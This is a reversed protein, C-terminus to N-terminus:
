GAPRLELIRMGPPPRRLEWGTDIRFYGGDSWIPALDRYHPSLAHGSQGPATVFLSADLDSLDYIARMSAAHVTEFDSGGFNFHGVNITSGDGGHPARVTFLRNLLPAGGLLAHGFLGAHAEGWRWAAPDEGYREALRAGAADLAAGMAEGCTEDIPTAIDDCWQSLEGSLVRDIFVQRANDFRPFQEGLEDAYIARHLAEYWAAFALPEPRATTMAGNWALLMSQIVAGMDTTPRARRLSPLLRLALDSTVDLQISRFSELDHLSTEALRQKIRAIRFVAFEGPLPYPYGDPVIVNNATAIVGSAPNRVRPLNEYPIAGTWDGAADRLPV